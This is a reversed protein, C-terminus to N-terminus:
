FIINKHTEPTRYHSCTSSLLFSSCDACFFFNTHNQSRYFFNFFFSVRNGIPFSSSCFSILFFFFSFFYSYFLHIIYQNSKHVLVFFKPHLTFVFFLFNCLSNVLFPILVMTYVNSSIFLFDIAFLSSCSCFLAFM